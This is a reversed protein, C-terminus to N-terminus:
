AGSGGERGKMQKDESEKWAPLQAMQHPAPFKAALSRHPVVSLLCEPGDPSIACPQAPAERQCRLPSPSQRSRPLTHTRWHTNIEHAQWLSLTKPSPAHLIVSHEVLIRVCFWKFQCLFSCLLRSLFTLTQNCMKCGLSFFLSALLRTTARGVVRDSGCSPDEAPLQPNRSSSTM